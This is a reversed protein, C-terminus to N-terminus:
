VEETIRITHQIKKSKNNMEEKYVLGGLDTKLSNCININTSQAELFQRTEM